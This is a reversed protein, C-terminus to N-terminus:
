AKYLKAMSKLANIMHEGDSVDVEVEPALTEDHTLYYHGNRSIMTYSFDKTKEAEELTVVEADRCKYTQSRFIESKEFIQKAKEAGQKTKYHRASVLGYAMCGWTTGVCYYVTRNYKNVAKVIYTNAKDM